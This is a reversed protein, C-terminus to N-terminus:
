DIDVAPAISFVIDMGYDELVIEDLQTRAVLDYLVIRTPLYFQRFGHRIWSINDKFKTPRLRTFGVWCRRDDVPLIGRMWGLDSPRDGIQNLDIASDIKLTEQDVIFVFGDVTTFYIKGNYLLGDHPKGNFEIRGGPRTLCVADHQQLRTVWIDEGLTFTYNPHSAHPKTTAVRRYDVTRSFRKWPDDGLVNWEELVQGEPSVKVVMDLGTSVVLLNGDPLARVHHVDNFCSLSLYGVQKFQPVEYILVETNTPVYMRNGQLDGSKFLISPEEDPCAGAPSKYEACVAADRRPPDIRLIVAKEYQRWEHVISPRQQGGSVYLPFESNLNPSSKRTGFM